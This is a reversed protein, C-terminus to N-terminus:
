SRARSACAACRGRVPPDGRGRRRGGAAGPAGDPLRRGAADAAGPGPAPARVDRRHAPDEVARHRPGAPHLGGAGLRLVAAPPARVALLVPHGQRRGDGLLRRRLDRRQDLRAPDVHYGATLEAYMRHVREPTRRLGQRDPDEGIEVLIERVAEEVRGSPTSPPPAESRTGRRRATRASRPRSRPVLKRVHDPVDETPTSAPERRDSMTGSPVDSRASRVESSLRAHGGRHLWHRTDPRGAPGRRRAAVGPRERRAGPPPLRGGPPHRAAPRAGGGPPGDRPLGDTTLAFDGIPDLGYTDFGLSVVVISGPEDAIASSAATSPRSTAARRRAPPCRCTSTPARARRGRRGRRCPGPLVPVAAAPRRPALRVARRRAALLDAAHRQRPPLRRRPDRRARRDSPSRRRRRDRRQQLLLLRRVDLPAAHHGPPRCLGYAAAEGGLVLDVTTLAVDVAARAAVYTGAVIPNSTDLGWWGARGGISDPERPAYGDGGMGEVYGRVFLTEPSSAPRDIGQALRQVWAEALFRVLGADHVALIPAEGHDTPPEVPFGGDAELTASIREAREAVENAPIPLGMVTETVIEHGLHLPSYVVRM